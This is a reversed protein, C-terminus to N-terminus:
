SKCGCDAPKPIVINVGLLKILRKFLECGKDCACDCESFYKLATHLSVIEQVPATPNYVLYNTVECSLTCDVFICSLDTNSSGDDNNTVTLKVQYIGDKFQEWSTSLHSPLLTFVRNVVDFNQPTLTIPLFEECCNVTVELTFTYSAPDELYFDM